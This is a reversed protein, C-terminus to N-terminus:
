HYKDSLDDLTKRIEEPMVRSLYGHTLGLHRAMQWGNDNCPNSKNIALKKDCHPCKDSKVNVVGALSFIEKRYHKLAIHCKLFNMKSCRSPCLPCAFPQKSYDIVEEQKKIVPIRVVKVSEMKKLAAKVSDPLVRDLYGHKVGLHDAFHGQNEKSITKCVDCEKKGNAMKLINDRYHTRGLHRKLQGFTGYFSNCVPCKYDNRFCNQLLIAEKADMLKYLIHPHSSVMHLIVEKRDEMFYQKDVHCLKCPEDVPGYRAVLKDEYHASAIHFRLDQPSSMSKKCCSWRKKAKKLLTRYNKWSHDKPRHSQGFAILDNLQAKVPKCAVLLIQEHVIGLHIIKDIETGGTKEKCIPCALKDPGFRDLLEEKYHTVSLHQVYKVYTKYIGDCLQCRIRSMPDLNGKSELKQDARVQVQNEETPELEDNFDNDEDEITLDADMETCVNQAIDTPCDKSDTLVSLGSELNNEQSEFNKVKLEEAEELPDSVNSEIHGNKTCSDTEGLDDIAIIHDYIADSYDSKADTDMDAGGQTMVEEQSIGINAPRIITQNYNKHEVSLEACTGFSNLLSIVEDMIDQDVLDVYGKVSWQLMLNVTSVRVDPLMIVFNGNSRAVVM